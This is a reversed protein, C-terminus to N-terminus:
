RICSGESYCTSNQPSGAKYQATQCATLTAYCGLGAAYYLYGNPCCVHASRIYCYGPSCHDSSSPANNSTTSTSADPDTPWPCAWSSVAALLVVLLMMKKTLFRM